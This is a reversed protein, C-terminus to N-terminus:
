REVADPCRNLASLVENFSPRQRPDELLCKAVLVTFAKPWERVEEEELLSVLEGSHANEGSVPLPRLKAGSARVEAITGPSGPEDSTQLSHEEKSFAQELTAMEWM